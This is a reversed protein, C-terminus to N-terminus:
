PNAATKTGEYQNSTGECAQTAGVWVLASDATVGFESVSIKWEAIQDLRCTVVPLQIKYATDEKNPYLIGHHRTAGASQILYDIERRDRNYTAALTKITFEPCLPPGLDCAAVLPVAIAMWKLTRSLINPKQYAQM